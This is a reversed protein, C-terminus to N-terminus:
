GHMLGWITPAYIYIAPTAVLSSVWIFMFITRPELLWSLVKKEVQIVESKISSLNLASSM